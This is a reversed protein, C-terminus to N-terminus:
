HSVKKPWETYTRKRNDDYNLGFEVQQTVDRCTM